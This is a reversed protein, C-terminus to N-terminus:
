AKCSKSTSSYAKTYGAAKAAKVLATADTKTLCASAVRYQTKKKPIADTLTRFVTPKLALNAKLVFADAAAKSSTLPHVGGLGSLAGLIGLRGHSLVRVTSGWM